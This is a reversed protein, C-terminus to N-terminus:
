IVDSFPADVAEPSGPRSPGESVDWARPTFLGCWHGRPGSPRNRFTVLVCVAVLAGPCPRHPVSRGSGGEGVPWSAREPRGPFTELVRPAPRPSQLRQFTRPRSPGVRGTRRATVTVTGEAGQDPCGGVAGASLSAGPARGGECSGGAEEPPGPRPGPRSGRPAGALARSRPPDSASIVTRVGSDM